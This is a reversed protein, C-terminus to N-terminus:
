IGIPLNVVVIEEGTSTIATFSVTLIREARDFSSEYVSIETINERALINGKIAIDFNITESQGLLQVPNNDNALYPIGALINAFWEGLFTSLDIQVQQRSSEPISSTLRMSKNTLDIDGTVLNLFIDKAV